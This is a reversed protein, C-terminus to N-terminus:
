YYYSSIIIDIAAYHAARSRPPCGRSGPPPGGPDMFLFIIAILRHYYGTTIIAILRYYHSNNIIAIIM